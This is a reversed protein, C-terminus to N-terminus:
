ADLVTITGSITGTLAMAGLKKVGESLDAESVIAYRRYVSETKHGTVRGAV